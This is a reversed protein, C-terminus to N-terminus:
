SIVVGLQNLTEEFRKLFQEVVPKTWKSPIRCILKRLYKKIIIELDEPEAGDPLSSKMQRSVRSMLAEIENMNLDIETCDIIITFWDFDKIADKFLFNIKMKVLDTAYLLIEKTLDLSYREKFEEQMLGIETALTEELKELLNVIDGYERTVKLEM